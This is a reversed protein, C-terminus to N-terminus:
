AANPRGGGPGGPGGPGGGRGGRQPRAKEVIAKQAPTLVGEAAQRASQFKERFGGGGGPAGGGPPPAGGGGGPGRGPGGQPMLKKLEAAQARLKKKQDPTLNLDALAEAPIGVMRLDTVEEILAPLKKKQDATLIAEIDKNAKDASARLADFAKQMEPSM